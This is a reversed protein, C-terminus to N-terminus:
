RKGHKRERNMNIIMKREIEDDIEIELYGCMDGLRIFVDALEEKVGEFDGNRDAELCEGLESVVLMLLEPLERKREWFGKEVAIKHANTCLSKLNMLGKM